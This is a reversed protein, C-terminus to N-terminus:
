RRSSLVAVGVALVVDNQFKAKTITGRAFSNNCISIGEPDCTVQFQTRVLYDEAELRLVVPSPGLKLTAGASVSEALRNTGRLGMYGDGGLSVLAAGGGVHVSRAADPQGFRVLVRASATIVHASSNEFRGPVTTWKTGSPSYAFTEEIGLRGPLWLTARTGLVVSTKQQLSVSWTPASWHTETQDLVNGIPIFLGAYPAVDVQVQAVMSRAAVCVVSSLTVVLRLMPTRVTMPCRRRHPDTAPPPNTISLLTPVQTLLPPCAVRSDRYHLVLSLAGGRIADGYSRARRLAADKWQKM